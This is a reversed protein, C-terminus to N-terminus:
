QVHPTAHRPTAHRSCQPCAERPVLCAFTCIDIGSGAVASFVGGTFGFVLLTAAKWNFKLFDWETDPFPRVEGEEFRPIQCYHRLCV